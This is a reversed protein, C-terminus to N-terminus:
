HLHNTTFLRDGVHWTEKYSLSLLIYSYVVLLNSCQVHVHVLLHLVNPEYIPYQRLDNM